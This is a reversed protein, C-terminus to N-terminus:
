DEEDDEDTYGVDDEDYFDPQWDYGERVWLPFGDETNIYDIGEFLDPHQEYTAALADGVMENHQYSFGKEDSEKIANDWEEQTYLTLGIELSRRDLESYDKTM